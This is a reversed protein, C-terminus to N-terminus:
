SGLIIKFLYKFGADLIIVLVIFFGTFLLLAATMKWTAQRNPWRVLRLEQWSGKFYRGITRLLRGRPKKPASSKLDQKSVTATSVSKKSHQPKQKPSDDAAKVRTVHTSAKETKKVM